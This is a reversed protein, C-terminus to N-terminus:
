SAEHSEETEKFIAYYDKAFAYQKLAYEGFDVGMQLKFECWNSWLLGCMAIYAYIKRRVIDECGKTFYADILEDVKDHEYMSYVAFMAIDLHPDQMASYEWDILRIESDHHGDIFLFNDPVADIHTLVYDLSLNDVFDKLQSVNAKTTQYDAYKSPAGQWLREYFNIREWIDFAHQVKLGSAHFKRLVKMCAKVDEENFPDCVKADQWYVTIKIGTEPNMYIVDDCINLPEITKYVEYERKRLILKETGEGPTRAIYQKKKYTFLYSRNTMGREMDTVELIEDEQCGMIAAIKEKIKKRTKEETKKGTKEEMKKDSMM